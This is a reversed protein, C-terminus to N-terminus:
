LRLFFDDREIWYIRLDGLTAAEGQPVRDIDMSLLVALRRATRAEDTPDGARRVQTDMDRAASLLAMELARAPLDPHAAAMDRVLSRYGDPAAHLAELVMEKIRADDM